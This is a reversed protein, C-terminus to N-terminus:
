GQEIEKIRERAGEAIDPDEDNALERLISLPTKRNWVIRGRVSLDPDMALKEFMDHSLKRKEAVASRVRPNPDAMLLRLISIPITKNHVVARKMDPYKTIVALWVEEPASELVARSYIDPDESTRLEVFEEASTIM